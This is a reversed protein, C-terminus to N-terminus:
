VSETFQLNALPCGGHGAIKSENLWGLIGNDLKRTSKFAYDSALGVLFIPSFM